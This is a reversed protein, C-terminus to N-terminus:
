RGDQSASAELLATLFSLPNWYAHILHYQGFAEKRLPKTTQRKQDAHEVGHMWWPNTGPGFFMVKWVLSPCFNHHHGHL